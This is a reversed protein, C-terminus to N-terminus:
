KGESGVRLFRHWETKHKKNTDTLMIDIFQGHKSELRYTVVDGIQMAPRKGAKGFLGTNEWGTVELVADATELRYVQRIREDLNGDSGYHSQMTSIGIVRATGPAMARAQVAPAPAPTAVIKCAQGNVVQENPELSGGKELPRCSLSQGFAATGFLLAIVAVLMTKL